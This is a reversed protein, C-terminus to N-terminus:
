TGDTLRENIPLPEADVLPSCRLARLQQPPPADRALADVVEQVRSPLDLRQEALRTIQQQEAISLTRQHDRTREVSPVVGRAVAVALLAHSTEFAWILRQENGAPSESWRWRLTALTEVALDFAIVPNGVVRLLGTVLLAVHQRAFDDWGEHAENRHASMHLWSCRVLTPRFCGSRASNAITQVGPQRTPASAVPSDIGPVSDAPTTEFPHWEGRVIAQLYVSKNAILHKRIM